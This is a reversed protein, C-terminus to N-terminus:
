AGLTGATKALDGLGSTFTKFADFRTPMQGRGLQGNIIMQALQNQLQSIQNMQDNSQGLQQGYLSTQGPTTGYLSRQGGLIDSQAGLQGATTQNLGGLGALKGQRIADALSANVNVNTDSVSQGLERAMKATAAAYNPSYGQIARNRDLNAQANAYVARTPAVGRARLDQIDQPSYGGTDAFNQYGARQNAYLGPIQSFVDNYNQYMQGYNKESQDASVNYRNQLQQNQPLLNNFTNTLQNQANGGQYDIANQIRKPDGKPM